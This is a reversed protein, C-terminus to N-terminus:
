EFHINFVLRMVRQRSIIYLIALSQFVLVRLNLRDEIYVNTRSYCELSHNLSSANCAAGQHYVTYCSFLFSLVLLNSMLEFINQM